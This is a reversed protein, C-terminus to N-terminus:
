ADQRGHVRVGALQAAQQSGERVETAVAPRARHGGLRGGDVQRDQHREVAVHGYTPWVLRGLETRQGVGLAVDDDHAEEGHEVVQRPEELVLDLGHLRGVAKVVGVVRRRYVDHQRTESVVADVRDEVGIDEVTEDEEETREDREDKEVALQNGRQSFRLALSHLHHLFRVRQRGRSGFVVDGQHQYDDDDHEDHTLGRRRRRLDQQRHEADLHASTRAGEEVVLPDAVQQDDSVRGDVEYYVAETAPSKALHEGVEHTGVLLRQGVRRVHALHADTVLVPGHTLVRIAHRLQRM